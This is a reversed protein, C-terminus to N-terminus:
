GQYDSSWSRRSSMSFRKEIKANNKEIKWKIDEVTCSIKTYGKKCEDIKEEQIEDRLSETLQLNDHTNDNYYTKIEDFTGEQDPKAM